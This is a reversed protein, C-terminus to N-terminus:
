SRLRSLYLEFINEDKVLIVTPTYRVQGSIIAEYADSVKRFQENAHKIDGPSAQCHRDPHWKMAERKYVAKVEEKSAGQALGLVQYEM